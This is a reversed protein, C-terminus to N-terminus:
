STIASPVDSGSYLTTSSVVACRRSRCSATKTRGISLRFGSLKRSSFVDHIPSLEFSSSRSHDLFGFLEELSRTYQQYSRYALITRRPDTRDLVEERIPLKVKSHHRPRELRLIEQAVRTTSKVLHNAVPRTRSAFEFEVTSHAIHLIGAFTLTITLSQFGLDSPTRFSQLEMKEGNLDLGRPQKQGAPVRSGDM